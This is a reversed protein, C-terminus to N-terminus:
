RRPQSLFLPLLLFGAILGGIHAQWAINAVPSGASAGFVGIGVNTLLYLGLFTLVTRSRILQGIPPLVIGRGNGDAKLRFGARAAAGMMGSVAGSAGIMPAISSPDALYHFLAAIASCAIWFLAFRFNSMAKAVPSGFAVLWVSNNLLHGISGHLLSYTVPSTFAVWSLTEGYRAPIFAGYFLVYLNNETSLLNDRALHIALCAALVAFISAPINFARPREQPDQEFSMSIELPLDWVIGFQNFFHGSL